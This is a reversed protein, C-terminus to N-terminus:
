SYLSPGHGSGGNGDDGIRDCRGSHGRWRDLSGLDALGTNTFTRTDTNQGWGIATALNLKAATVIEDTVFPMIYSRTTSGLVGLDADALQWYTFPISQADDLM